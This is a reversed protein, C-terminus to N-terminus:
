EKGPNAKPPILAAWGIRIVAFVTLVIMLFNLLSTLLFIPSMKVGGITPAGLNDPTLRIEEGIPNGEQDIPRPILIGAEVSVGQPWLNRLSSQALVPELDTRILEMQMMVQGVLVSPLNPNLLTDSDLIAPPPTELCRPPAEVVVTDGSTFQGPMDPIEFSDVRYVCVGAEPNYKGHVTSGDPM